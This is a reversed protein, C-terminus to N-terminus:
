SLERDYSRLVRTINLLNLSIQKRINVSDIEILSDGIGSSVNSLTKPKTTPTYTSGGMDSPPLSMGSQTGLLNDSGTTLVSSSSSGGTVYQISQLPSQSPSAAMSTDSSAGMSPTSRPSSIGSGVSPDATPAAASTPSPSLAPAIASDTGKQSVLELLDLVKTVISSSEKNGRKASYYAGLAMKTREKKTKGKFRADTSHVFDSIWAGPGSSASLPM